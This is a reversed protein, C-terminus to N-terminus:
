RLNFNSRKLQISKEKYNFSSLSCGPGTSGGVFQHFGKPIWPSTQSSTMFSCCKENCGRLNQHDPQKLADGATGEEVDGEKLDEFPLLQLLDAHGSEEAAEKDDEAEAEHRAQLGSTLRIFWWEILKQGHHLDLPWFLQHRVLLEQTQNRSDRIMKFILLFFHSHLSQAFNFPVLFNRYSLFFPRKVM